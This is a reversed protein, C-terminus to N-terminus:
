LLRMLYPGFVLVAVVVANIATLLVGGAAMDKALKALPHYDETILDVTREIATNITEASLVMFITLSLITWEIRNVGLIFAISIAAIAALLHIKMNRSSVLSGVIGQIAWSLSRSFGEM